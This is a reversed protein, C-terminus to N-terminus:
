EYCLLLSEYCRTNWAQACVTSHPVAEPDHKAKPRLFDQLLAVKHVITLQLGDDHTRATNGCAARLSVYLSEKRGSYYVALLELEFELEFLNIKSRLDNLTTFRHLIM